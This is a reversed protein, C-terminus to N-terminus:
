HAWHAAHFILFDFNVKLILVHNQFVDFHKATGLTFFFQKSRLLMAYYSLSDAVGSFGSGELSISFKGSLVSKLFFNPALKSGSDVM